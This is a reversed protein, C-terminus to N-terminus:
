PVARRQLDGDAAAGVVQTVDTVPPLGAVGAHQDQWRIMLRACLTELQVVKEAWSSMRHGSYVEALFYKHPGTRTVDTPSFRRAAPLPMPQLAQQAPLSLEILCAGGEALSCLPSPHREGCLM